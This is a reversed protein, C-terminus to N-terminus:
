KVVKKLKEKYKKSLVYFVGCELCPKTFRFYPECLTVCYGNKQKNEFNCCTKAIKLDEENDFEGFKNEDKGNGNSKIHLRGSTVFSKSKRSCKTKYEKKCKLSCFDKIKFKTEVLFSGCNKCKSM